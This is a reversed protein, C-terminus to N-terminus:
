SGTDIGKLIARDVDGRQLRKLQPSRSMEAAGM